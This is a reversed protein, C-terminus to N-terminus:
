EIVCEIDHDLPMVLLEKFFVNSLENVMPVDSGQSADLQNLKV